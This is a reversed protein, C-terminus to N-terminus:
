NEECHAIAEKRTKFPGDVDQSMRSDAWWGQVREGWEGRSGKFVVWDPYWYKTPRHGDPTASLYPIQEVIHPHPQSYWQGELTQRGSQAVNQMWTYKLTKM